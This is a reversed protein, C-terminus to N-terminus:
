RELRRMDRNQMAAIKEMDFANRVSSHFFSVNVAREQARQRTIFQKVLLVISNIIKSLMMGGFIVKQRTLVIRKELPLILNLTRTLEDGYARIELCEFFCHELAELEGFFTVFLAM